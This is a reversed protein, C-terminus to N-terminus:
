TRAARLRSLLRHKRILVFAIIAMAELIQSLHNDQRECDRGEDSAGNM